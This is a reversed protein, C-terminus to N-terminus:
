KGMAHSILKGKIVPLRDLLNLGLNRALRLPALESAFLRALGDTTLQMLMVQEKRARRYRELVRSDGCDRYAERRRVLDLLCAVDGFGLNMGHGALPHVVHAADGVLAVRPAITSHPHMLTLPFAKIEEPVLASLHGLSALCYEELRAALAPLPERLLQAALADPASWVLSVRQGPLPLLAIIGQEGVFWQQAVGRHPKECAFNAVVGKQGYSRYDLGIDCQARVWSQAGDAGIVLTARLATGDDLRVLASDEQLQLAQARGHLVNLNQAFKMATDLARNLNRDEVIWALEEICAGYADFGLKGADAAHGGHVQMAAVPAVRGADLADWVRLSSLLDHAVHNLAYVRVDWHDSAAVPAAAPCLLTVKLGAQTLGLAAAKGVAGNGVICIDSHQTQNAMFVRM